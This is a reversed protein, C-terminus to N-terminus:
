GGTFINSQFLGATSSFTGNKLIWPDYAEDCVNTAKKKSSGSPEDTAEAAETRVPRSGGGFMAFVNDKAATAASTAKDTLSSGATSTETVDTTVRKTEDKALKPGAQAGREDAPKTGANDSM